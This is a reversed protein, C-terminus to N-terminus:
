TLEFPNMETFIIGVSGKIHGILGSKALATQEFAKQIVRTKSVRVVAKGQLKKRIRGFLAAPFLTLDAIAVVPYSEAM